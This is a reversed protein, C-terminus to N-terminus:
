GAVNPALTTLPKTTEAVPRLLKRVLYISLVFGLLLGIVPYLWRSIPYFDLLAASKDTFLALSEGNPHPLHGYGYWEISNTVRHIVKGTVTDHLDLATEDPWIRDIIFDLHIGLWSARWPDDKTRTQIIFYPGNQRVFALNVSRTTVGFHDDPVYKQDKLVFRRISNDVAVFSSHDPSFFANEVWGKIIPLMVQRKVDVLLLEHGTGVQYCHYAIEGDQSVGHAEGPYHNGGIPYVMPREQDDHWTLFSHSGLSKGQREGIAVVTSGNIRPYQLLGHELASRYRKTIRQQQWDFLLVENCEKEVRTKCFLIISGDDSLRVNYVGEGEVMEEPLKTRFLRKGTQSDLGIIARYCDGDFSSDVSKVTKEAFLMIKGNDAFGLGRVVDSDEFIVKWRTNVSPAFWLSDILGVLPLALVLLWLFFRRM